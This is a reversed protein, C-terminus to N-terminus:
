DPVTRYPRGCRYLGLRSEFPQRDELEPIIANALVQQTVAGHFLGVEAYASALTDLYYHSKGGDEAVVAEALAVARPGDRLTDDPSTALIGAVANRVALSGPNRRLVAAYDELAAADRGSRSRLSGRLQYHEDNPALRVLEDMDSLARGADGLHHRSYARVKLGLCNGPDAILLEDAAEIAGMWDELEYLTVVRQSWVAKATPLAPRRASALFQGSEMVCRTAEAVAEATPGDRNLAAMAAARAASLVRIQALMRENEELLTASTEEELRTAADFDAVALDYNGLKTHVRSRTHIAHPIAGCEISRDCDDLSQEYDGLIYHIQGREALLLPDDQRLSLASDYDALSGLLDDLRRRAEARSRYAECHRPDLEIAHSFELASQAYEKAKLLASGRGYSAEAEDSM